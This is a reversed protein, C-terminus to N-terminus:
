KSGLSTITANNKVVDTYSFIDTPKLLGPHWDQLVTQCEAFVEVENHPPLHTILLKPCYNLQALDEKLAAPYYHKALESIRAEKQTYQNDMILHQVPPLQNLIQWFDPAQHSDGSFAFCGIEPSTGVWYGVTPVSHNAPLAQICLDDFTKLEGVDLTHLRVCPKEASPLETFDPWIVYNFIHTKLANITHPLGYVDIAPLGTSILNNLLFPLHSIHDLHSHTLFVRKIKQMAEFELREVGTGCDILTDENVLFATTGKNPAIGGSCGLIKLQM